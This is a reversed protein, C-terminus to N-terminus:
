ALSRLQPIILFLTPLTSQTVNCLAKINRALTKSNGSTSLPHHLFSALVCDLCPHHSSSALYLDYLSLLKLLSSPPNQLM